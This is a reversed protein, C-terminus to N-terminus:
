LPSMFHFLYFHIPFGVKLTMPHTRKTMMKEDCGVGIFITNAM